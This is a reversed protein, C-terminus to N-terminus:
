KNYIIKVMMKVAVRGEFDFKVAFLNGNMVVPLKQPINPRHLM